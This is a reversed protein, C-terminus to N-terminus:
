SVVILAEWPGAADTGDNVDAVAVAGVKEKTCHIATDIRVLAFLEAKVARKSGDGHAEASLPRSDEFLVPPPLLEATTRKKRRWDDARAILMPRTKQPWVGAAVRIPIDTEPSREKM